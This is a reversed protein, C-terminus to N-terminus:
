SCFFCVTLFSKLDGNPLYELVILPSDIIIHCQSNLNIPKLTCTGQQVLGFLRVINPHILKSMVIMEKQFNEKEKESEYQKITKIAVPLGSSRHIGKYVKGFKGTHVHIGFCRLLVTYLCSQAKTKM